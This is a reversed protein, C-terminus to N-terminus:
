PQVRVRRAQVDLAVIERLYKSVDIVVARGVTQGCQSTGGGRPLVPVSADRCAALATEVDQADRPIVVRLPEVQYISADTAYLGRMLADFRVEGRLEHRLRRHLAGGELSGTVDPGGGPADSSTAPDGRHDAALLAAAAGPLQDDGLASSVLVRPPR